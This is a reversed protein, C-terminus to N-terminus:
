PHESAKDGVQNEMVLQISPIFSWRFHIRPMNRVWNIVKMSMLIIAHIVQGLSLVGADITPLNSLYSSLSPMAQQTKSFDAGM